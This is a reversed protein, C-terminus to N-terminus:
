SVEEELCKEAHILYESTSYMAVFKESLDKYYTESERVLSAEFDDEYINLSGMGMSILVDRTAKLLQRDITGGGRETKIIQLMNQIVRKKTPEYIVEKFKSLGSKDLTPLGYHVIHYRDLYMFFKRYWNNMIKYDNWRKVFERLLLDSPSDPKGAISVHVVDQLYRQLSDGHRQYLQDSWKYPERQTCMNYCKTYTAMYQAPSFFKNDKKLGQEIMKELVDLAKTKIEAWGEELMITGELDM